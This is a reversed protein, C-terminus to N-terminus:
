PRRRAPRVPANSPANSHSKQDDALQASLEGGGHLHRHARARLDAVHLGDLRRRVRQAGALARVQQHDVVVEVDGAQDGGVLGLPDAHRHHGAADGGVRLARGVGDAGPGLLEDRQRRFGVQDGRHQGRHAVVVARHHHAVGVHLRHDGQGVLHGGGVGRDQDGALLPTPL